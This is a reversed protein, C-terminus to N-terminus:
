TDLHLGGQALNLTPPPRAMHTDITQSHSGIILFVTPRPHTKIVLNFYIHNSALQLTNYGMRYPLKSCPRLTVKMTNFCLYEFGCNGLWEQWASGLSEM